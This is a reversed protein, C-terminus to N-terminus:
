SLLRLPVWLQVRSRPLWLVAAPATLLAAAAAPVWLRPSREDSRDVEDSVKRAADVPSSEAYHADVSRRLRSTVVRVGFGAVVAVTAPVVWAPATLVAAATVAGTGGAAAVATAAGTAAAGLGSTAVATAAGEVADVGRRAAYHGGSMDHRVLRRLDFAGGIVLSWAAGKAGAKATQFVRSTSSAGDAALQMAGRDLQDYVEARTFDSGQVRCRGGAFRAARDSFDAPVRFTAYRGSGPKWGDLREVSARLSQYDLKHQIAGAFQDGIFRSADYGRALPDVRLVLRHGDAIHRLNYRQTDLEEFLYGALQSRAGASAGIRQGAARLSADVTPGLPSTWVREVVPRVARAAALRMEHQIAAAGGAVEAFPLWARGQRRALDVRVKAICLEELHVADQLVQETATAFREAGHHTAGDAVLGITASRIREADAHDRHTDRPYDMASIGLRDRLEGLREGAQPDPQRNEADVLPADLVAKLAKATNAAQIVVDRDEGDLEDFPTGREAIEQVAALQPAFLNRGHKAVTAYDGALEDLYSYTAHAANAEATASTLKAVQQRAEDFDIPELQLAKVFEGLESDNSLATLESAGLAKWAAVFVRLDVDYIEYKLQAYRRLADLALGHQARTAAFAAEYPVHAEDVMRRAKSIKGAGDAGKKVRTGSLLASGCVLVVPIFLPM